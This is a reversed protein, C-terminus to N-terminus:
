VRQGTGPACTSVPDLESSFGRVAADEGPDGALRLPLSKDKEILKSIPNTLEQKEKKIEVSSFYLFM